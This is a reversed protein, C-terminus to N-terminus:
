LGTGLECLDRRTMRRAPPPSSSGKAAATSAMGGSACPVPMQWPIGGLPRCHNHPSAAAGPVSLFFSITFLRDGPPPLVPAPQLQLRQGCGLARRESLSAFCACSYCCGTPHFTGAAQLACSSPLGRVQAVAALPSAGRRPLRAPPRPVRRGGAPPGPQMREGQAEHM